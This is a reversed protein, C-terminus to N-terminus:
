TLRHRICLESHLEINPMSSQTLLQHFYQHFLELSHYTRHIMNGLTYAAYLHSAWLSYFCDMIYELILSFLKKVNLINPSYGQLGM